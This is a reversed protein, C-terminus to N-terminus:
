EAHSVAEREGSEHAKRVQVPDSAHTGPWDYRPCDCGRAECDAYLVRHMCRCHGCECIEHHIKM